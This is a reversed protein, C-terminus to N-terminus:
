RNPGVYRDQHEMNTQGKADVTYLQVLDNKDMKFATLFDFPSTFDMTGHLSVLVQDKQITYVGSGTQTHYFQGNLNSTYEVRGDPLFVYKASLNDQRYTYIGAVLKKKACGAVLLAALVGFILWRLTKMLNERM